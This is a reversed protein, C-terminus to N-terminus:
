FPTDKQIHLWFFELEWRSNTTRPARIRACDGRLLVPGSIQHGIRLRFVRRFGPGGADLACDNEVNDDVAIARNLGHGNSATVRYKGLGSAPCNAPRPVPGGM